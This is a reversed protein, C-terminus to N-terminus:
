CFCSVLHHIYCVKNSLKVELNAGNNLVAIDQDSISTLEVPTQDLITVTYPGAGFLTKVQLDLALKTKSQLVVDKFMATGYERVFILAPNSVGNPTM